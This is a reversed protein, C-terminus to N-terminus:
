KSFHSFKLLNVLIRQECNKPILFCVLRESFLSFLQLRMGRLGEFLINHLGPFTWSGPPVDVGPGMYGDMPVRKCCAQLIADGSLSFFSSAVM